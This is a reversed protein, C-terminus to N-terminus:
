YGAMGLGGYGQRDIMGGGELNFQTNNGTRKRMEEELLQQLPAAQAAPAPAQQQQALLQDLYANGGQAPAGSGGTGGPTFADLIQQQGQSKFLLQILADNLYKPDFQRGPRPGQYFQYQPYYGDYGNM